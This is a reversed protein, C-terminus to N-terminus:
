HTVVETGPLAVLRRRSDCTKEQVEKSVAFATRFGRIVEHPVTAPPVAM